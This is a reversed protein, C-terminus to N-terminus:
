AFCAAYQQRRKSKNSSRAASSPRRPRTVFWARGQYGVHHTMTQEVKADILNRAQFDIRDNDNFKDSVAGDSQGGDVLTAITFDIVRGASGILQFFGSQHIIIDRWDHDGNQCPARGAFPAIVPAPLGTTAGPPLDFTADYVTCGCSWADTKVCRVGIRDASAASAARQAFAASLGCRQTAGVAIVPKNLKRM